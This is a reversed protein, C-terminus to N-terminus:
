FPMDNSPVRSDPQQRSRQGRSQPQRSQEPKRRSAESPDYYGEEGKPFFPIAANERKKGFTINRRSHRDQLGFYENEENDKRYVPVVEEIGQKLLYDADRNLEEIGALAQHLEAFTDAMIKVRQGAYDVVAEFKTM